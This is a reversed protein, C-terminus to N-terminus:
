VIISNDIIRVQNLNNIKSLVKESFNFDVHVKLNTNLCFEFFSKLEYFEECEFERCKYSNLLSTFEQASYFNRFFDSILYKKNIMGAEINISDYLFGVLNKQIYKRMIEKSSPEYESQFNYSTDSQLKLQIIVEIDSVKNYLYYVKKDFENSKKVFESLYNLAIELLGIQDIPFDYDEKIITSILGTEFHYPFIANVFQERVFNAHNTKDGKYLYEKVDTNNIKNILLNNNAGISSSFSSHNSQIEKSSIYFILM